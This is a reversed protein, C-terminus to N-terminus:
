HFWNRVVWPGKGPAVSAKERLDDRGLGAGGHIINLWCEKRACLIGQAVVVCACPLVSDCICAQNEYFYLIVKEITLELWKFPLVYREMLLNSICILDKLM